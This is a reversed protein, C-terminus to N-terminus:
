VQYDGLFTRLETKGFDQEVQERSHPGVAQECAADTHARRLFKNKRAPYQGGFFQMFQPYDIDQHFIALTDRRYVVPDRLVGFTPVPDLRREACSAAHVRHRPFLEVGDRVYPDVCREPQGVAVELHHSPDHARLHAAHFLAIDGIDGGFRECLLASGGHASARCPRSPSSLPSGARSSCGASNTFTSARPTSSPSRRPRTKSRRSWAISGRWTTRTWPRTPLCFSSDAAISTADLPARSRNPCEAQM